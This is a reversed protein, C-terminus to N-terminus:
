KVWGKNEFDCDRWNEDISIYTSQQKEKIWEETKEIRKSVELMSKLQQYDEKPNAKHADIKSKLKVIVYMERDKSDRVLIPESIENVKMNEISKAINPKLQSIQFKTSQTEPNSLVGGNNRTEKDMSFMLAAEDFRVNEKRILDAISDLQLVARNRVSDNAEPKLLIHRCNVRNGRREILKIIHYGFETKVIRSVKEPDRLNFAVDAFEPVLMGKGMFGLEGGRRASMEDQSYLIALMNFDDGDRVRDQFERLRGKIRDVEEQNIEPYIAIQQVEMQAPIVPISDEKMQRYYLRVQAPTVKIDETLKSRMQQTLMRNKVIDWMEEKIEHSKKNFYEEMKEKSGIVSIYRNITAEVENLINADAVEISDIKAQDLLLKELMMNELIQCKMDGKIDYGNAQMRIFQNEIESKLIPDSGVVAVVEDIVTSNDQGYSNSLTFVSLLILLSIKINQMM